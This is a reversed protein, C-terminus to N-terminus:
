GKGDSPPSILELMARQYAVGRRIEEVTHLNEAWFREARARGSETDLLRVMRRGEKAAHQMATQFAVAAVPEETADGAVRAITRYFAQVLVLEDEAIQFARRLKTDDMDMTDM